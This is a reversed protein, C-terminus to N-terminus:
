AAKRCVVVKSLFALRTETPQLGAERFQSDIDDITYHRYYPEHFRVPFAELLGDWDPRDGMQLSDMFVLTGGPKLVRAIESTVRRRVEPPLEHYLFVCTAIDQSADAFPLEEANAALLQAARLRGLHTRAEDLYAQSLDLGTLRIAPLARRIERLLRGTGCAVDVLSLKRQDCGQVARCVASLVARRMLIASGYFLTEVQVDYLRASEATLYGGSQFHFDQTFYEPLGNAEDVASRASETDNAERREITTPLDRLMSRLRGLHEAAMGARMEIPPYLGDRVAQGDAVILARLDQLLEARSPTPRTPKYSRSAGHRAAEREMLWNVGLFWGVRLASAGVDAAMGIRDSM